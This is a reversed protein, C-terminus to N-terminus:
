TETAIYPFPKTIFIVVLIRTVQARTNAKIIKPGTHEAARNKGIGGLTKM